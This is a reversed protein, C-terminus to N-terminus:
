KCGIVIIQNLKLHLNERNWMKCRVSFDYLITNINISQLNVHIEIFGIKIWNISPKVKFLSFIEITELCGIHINLKYHSKFPIIM